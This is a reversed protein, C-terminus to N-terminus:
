VGIWAWAYQLLLPQDGTRHLALRVSLQRPKVWEPAVEISAVVKDDILWQLAEVIDDHVLQLTQATQKARTRLWLKSGIPKDAGLDGVWGRPDSTGDPIIDAPGAQRDTGLSILVATALDGGSQLDAGAQAWDGSTGAANWITTIDPV